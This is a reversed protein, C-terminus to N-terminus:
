LPAVTGSKWPTGQCKIAIFLSSANAMKLSRETSLRGRSFQWSFNERLEVISNKLLFNQVFINKKRQDIRMPADM